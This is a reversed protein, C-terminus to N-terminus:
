SETSYYNYQQVSTLRTADPPQTSQAHKNSSTPPPFHNSVNQLSSTFFPGDTTTMDGALDQFDGALDQFYRFLFIIFGPFTLCNKIGSLRPM